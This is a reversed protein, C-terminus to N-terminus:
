QEHLPGDIMSAITLRLGEKICVQPMWGIANQLDAIDPIRQKVDTYGEGYLEKGDIHEIEVQTGASIKVLEVVLCALDSISILNGPNGVNFVRHNTTHGNDRIIAQIAAIGDSVYTFSRTQMGDGVVSLNKQLLATRIFSSVVRDLVDAQSPSNDLRPGFWNFPRFITFPLGEARGIAFLFRELLQKSASYVWRPDQAPGTVLLSGTESLPQRSCLGYVESSSPFIIRTSTALCARIIDLNHAFTLEFTNVPDHFFQAPRPTAILPIVVDADVILETVLNLSHLVDTEVFDCRSHQRPKWLNHAEKDVAIVHMEECELLADVLHSGIFGNAGLVLARM